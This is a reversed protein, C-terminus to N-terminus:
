VQLLRECLARHRMLSRRLEETEAEGGASETLSRRQDDLASTLAAVLEDVLTGAASVAQKPDDVFSAQVERWRVHFQESLDSLLPGDAGDPAEDRPAAPQQVDAAATGAAASGAAVEAAPQADGIDRRSQDVAGDPTLQESAQPDTRAPESGDPRHTEVETVVVETPMPRDATQGDMDTDMGRPAAQDNRLTEGTLPDAVSRTDGALADRRSADDDMMPDGYAGNHVPQGDPGVDQQTHRARAEADAPDRDPQDQMAPDGGESNPQTGPEVPVRGVAVEDAATGTMPQATVPADRDARMAEPDDARDPSPWQDSQQDAPLGDTRQM